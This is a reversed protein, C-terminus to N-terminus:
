QAVWYVLSDVTAEGEDDFAGHKKATSRFGPAADEETVAYVIQNGRAAIFAAVEELAPDERYPPRSTIHRQLGLLPTDFAEGRDELAGSVMYLLSRPYLVSLMWDKKEREDDMTFMRFNQWTGPNAMVTERFLDCRCAPAMFLINKVTISYDAALTRILECIVISGASHGILDITLSGCEQAYEKLKDLFYRGAHRHIGTTGPADRQWMLAAKEKMNAWLWGGFDALYLERILEEMITPYFGHDRQQIHRRIVRYTIKAAAAVVRAWELLGARSRTGAGLKEMELHRIEAKERPDVLIDKFDDDEEFEDELDRELELLYVERSDSRVGAAKAKDLNLRAQEFPAEEQMEERIEDDSFETVARSGSPEDMEIGLRGGAIKIIKELLKKFLKTEHIENMNQGITEVLGTEWIFSVPHAPTGALLKGVLREATKMGSRASVLGGHFQLVIHKQGRAKLQSFLEDIDEPLTDYEPNGSPEFSANPGLNVYYKKELSAM